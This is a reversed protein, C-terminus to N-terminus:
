WFCGGGVRALVARDGPRSCRVGGGGRWTTRLCRWRWLQGGWVGREGEGERGRRSSNGGYAARRLPWRPSRCGGREGREGRDVAVPIWSPAPLPRTHGCVPTGRWRARPVPLAHAAWCASPHAGCRARGADDSARRPTARCGHPRPTAHCQPPSQDRAHGLPHFHPLRAWRRSVAFFFRSLWSHPPSTARCPVFPPTACHLAPRLTHARPLAGRSSM